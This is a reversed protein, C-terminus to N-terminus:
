ERKKLSQTYSNHYDDVSHAIEAFAIGPKRFSSHYTLSMKEPIDEVPDLAVPMCGVESGAPSDEVARDVIELVAPTNVAIRDAIMVVEVITEPAVMDVTMLAVVIMGAVIRDVVGMVAVIMDVIRVVEVITEPAAMEVTMLVVVVVVVSAAPIDEAVKKEFDREM